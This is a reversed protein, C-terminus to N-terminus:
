VVPPNPGRYNMTIAALGKRIQLIILGFYGGRYKRGYNPIFVDMTKRYFSFPLRPWQFTTHEPMNCCVGFDVGGMEDSM